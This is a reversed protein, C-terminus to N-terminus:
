PFDRLLTPSVNLLSAYVDVAPIAFGRLCAAPQRDTPALTPYRVPEQEM